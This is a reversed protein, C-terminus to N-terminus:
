KLKGRIGIYLPCPKVDIYITSVLLVVVRDNGGDTEVTTVTVPRKGDLVEIDRVRKGTLASASRHLHVVM